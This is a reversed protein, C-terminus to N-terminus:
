LGAAKRVADMKSSALAGVGNTAKKIPPRKKLAGIELKEIRSGSVDRTAVHFALFIFFFSACIIRFAARNRNIADM